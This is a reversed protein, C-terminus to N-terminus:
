PEGNLKDLKELEKHLWLLGSTEGTESPVFKFGLQKRSKDGQGMWVLNAREEYMQGDIEFEMEFPIDGEMEFCIGGESLNIARAEMLIFDGIFKIEARLKRRLPRASGSKEALVEAENEKELAALRTRLNELEEILQTKTKKSDQM